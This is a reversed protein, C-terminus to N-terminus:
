QALMRGILQKFQFKARFWIRSICLVLSPWIIKRHSPLSKIDRRFILPSIFAVVSNSATRNSHGHGHGYRTTTTTTTTTTLTDATTSQFDMCLARRSIELIVIKRVSNDIMIPTTVMKQQLSFIHVSHPGIAIPKINYEFYMALLFPHTATNRVITTQVVSHLYLRNRDCWIRCEYEMKRTCVPRIIVNIIRLKNWPEDTGDFSLLVM